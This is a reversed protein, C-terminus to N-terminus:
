SGEGMAQGNTFINERRRPFGASDYHSTDPSPRPSADMSSPRMSNAPYRSPSSSYMRSSARLSNSRLDMIDGSLSSSTTDTFSRDGAGPASRSPADSSTILPDDLGWSTLAERKKAFFQWAGFLFLIFFLIPSTWLMTNTEGKAVPLKSRYMGVCGGGLGVVVLKEHDSALLPIMEGRRGDDDEKKNYPLFSSKIEEISASFVLRPPGSRVYHQSSVNYVYINEQGAILLYGKIAQFSLPEDVEFKRRSRVRCKFNMIDGLLLVHILDGASTFGYARSREAADFVYNKALSRNMGECETERIKMTRLDLSGAGNETLFLLRQKLFALPRSTPLALGHLTGNERFVKIMGKDDASLIYRARGAHHVELMAVSSGLEGVEVSDLAVVNEVHVSSWDEGAVSEWVRHVLIMGNGHGTVLISDNKSISFYSLMATVPSDSSTKFEAAVEGNRLFVYVGGGDDGVAVYKSLGEFDQFPLVDVCTAVSDLNVASLLQFRESWFASYKTVSGPKLRTTTAGEMIAKGKLGEDEAEEKVDGYDSGHVVGKGKRIGNQADKLVEVKPLEDLKSELKAVLESLTLVLHGLRDIQAQFPFVVGLDDSNETNSTDACIVYIRSFYICPSSLSLLLFLVSIKGRLPSAMAM